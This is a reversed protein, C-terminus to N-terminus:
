WGLDLDLLGGMWRAFADAEEWTALMPYEDEWTFDIPEGYASTDLPEPMQQGTQDYFKRFQEVTIEYRSIYFDNM